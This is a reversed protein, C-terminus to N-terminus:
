IIDFNNNIIKKMLWIPVEGTPPPPPTVGSLYEYYTRASNYRDNLLGAPGQPSEYNYLWAGTAAYLDNATKFQSWNLKFQAPAWSRVFYKGARDESIVISQALGDSPNAGPTIGSTSLNPAYGQVGIGYGNIYGYAPTFQVLGYGKSDSTMSVIDSQWRWPNLGSEHQMNGLAAATAELTWGAANTVSYFETANDRAETSNIGYGGSPKAHWM